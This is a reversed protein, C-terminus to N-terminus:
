KVVEPVAPEGMVNLASPAFTRMVEFLGTVGSDVELSGGMDYNVTEDHVISSSGSDTGNRGRMYRHALARQTIIPAPPNQGAEDIVEDGLVINSVVRHDLMPDVNRIARIPRDHATVDQVRVVGVAQMEVAVSRKTTVPQDLVREDFPIDNVVVANAAARADIHISSHVAHNAVVEQILIVGAADAEISDVAPGTRAPIQHDVVRNELGAVAAPRDVDSVARSPIRESVIDEIACVAESSDNRDIGRAPWAKRGVEIAQHIAETEITATDDSRERGPL